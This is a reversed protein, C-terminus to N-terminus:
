PQFVTAPSFIITKVEPFQRATTEVQARLVQAHCAGGSTKNQPDAISLTLTGANTLSASTLSVGGLPFETTVGSSRESATLDGRLLLRLTDQLPTQTVPITRNVAVLGKSSCLINGAADKDLASNYFYLKVTRETISFRVPISISKANEPLGSPNDNRLILTGTSTTPKAFTLTVSFPVFNTTMWDSQAQAPAQAIIKGNGDRLEVPFSAEFYWTGRAQGTVTLPSTVIQNSSVNNVQIESNGTSTAAGPTSTAQTSTSTNNVFVIGEPTQCTEPMTEQVPYGASVCEEYTTIAVPSTGPGRMFFYIGGVIVILAIIGTILRSQGTTM